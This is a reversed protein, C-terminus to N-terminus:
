LRGMRSTRSRSLSQLARGLRRRSKKMEGPRGLGLRAWPMSDDTCVDQIDDRLREACVSRWAHEVCPEDVVSDGNGDGDDVEQLGIGKVRETLRASRRGNVVV